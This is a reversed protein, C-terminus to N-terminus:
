SVLLRERRAALAALEADAATARAALRARVTDVARGAVRVRDRAEAIRNRVSWDTFINDFWVDLTRTFGDVGVDGVGQEGLDGLEVTLRRLAGDARRLLAAAKDLRDHKAMSAIAGGDFFTDYTSWGDASRLENGAASLAAAAVAAAQRAEVIERQEARWAGTQEAVDALEAAAAGGGDRVWEEKATLAATWRGQVDGLADMAAEVDALDRAAADRRAQASAAVYEAAQQEAREADLRQARDGRVASWVRALSLSELRRVDATEDALSARATVLAEDAAALAQRARERRGSQQTHEVVAARAATLREEVDGVPM